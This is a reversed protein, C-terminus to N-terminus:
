WIASDILIEYYGLYLRGVVTKYLLIKRISIISYVASELQKHQISEM